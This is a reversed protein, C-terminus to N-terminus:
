WSNGSFFIGLQPWGQLVTTLNICEAKTAWTKHTRIESM